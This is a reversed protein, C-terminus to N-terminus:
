KVVKTLHAVSRRHKRFSVSADALAPLNELFKSQISIGTIGTGATIAAILAAIAGTDVIPKGDSGILAPKIGPVDIPQLYKSDQIHFNTLLTRECQIDTDATSKWAPDPLANIRVNFETIKCGTVADVLGGLAAGAGLLASVTETAGDYAVYFDATSKVGLKDQLSYSIITPTPM